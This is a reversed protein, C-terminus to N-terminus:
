YTTLSPWIELAFMSNGEFYRRATLPLLNFSENADFSTNTMHLIRSALRIQM